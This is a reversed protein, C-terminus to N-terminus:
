KQRHDHTNSMHQKVKKLKKKLGLVFGSMEAGQESTKEAMQTNCKALDWNLQVKNERFQAVLMLIVDAGMEPALFFLM